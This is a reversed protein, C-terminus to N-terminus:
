EANWNETSQGRWTGLLSLCVKGDAYLNPNFRVRGAGTTVLLVKPPHAPYDDGFFVDFIFAGHAYPTGSAGFVLVKMVDLRETDYRLFIANTHAVPLNKQCDSLEKM